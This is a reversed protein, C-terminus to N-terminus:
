WDYDEPNPEELRRFVDRRRFVTRDADSHRDYYTQAELKWFVRHLFSATTAEVAGRTTALEEDADPLLEPVPVMRVGVRAETGVEVAQLEGTLASPLVGGTVEWHMPLVFLGTAMHPRELRVRVEGACSAGEGRVDLPSAARLGAAARLADELRWADLRLLQEKVVTFSRSILVWQYNVM